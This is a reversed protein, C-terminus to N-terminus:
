YLAKEIIFLLTKSTQISGDEFDESWVNENSDVFGYHKYYEYEYNITIITNNQNKISFIFRSELKIEPPFNYNVGHREYNIGYIASKNEDEYGM